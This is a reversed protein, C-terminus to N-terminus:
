RKNQEMGTIVIVERPILLVFRLDNAPLTYTADVTETRVPVLNTGTFTVTKTQRMLDKKFRPDKNLRRLETWRQGRMVLEKRREALIKTLAEDVSTATMNTYTTVNNVKKWRTVLLDNLTKMADTVNNARASCEAKILFLEDVTLGVFLSANSVQEYNGTFRYTGDALSVTKKKTPDNPFDADQLTVSITNAKFFITKRLDNADYLAYLEGNIRATPSSVSGPNLMVLPTMIAQFIVEDNFRTFPTLSTTSITNYDLLKSNLQLAATANALANPYDEMCLYTRALMAYAAAKNPRSSIVSTVPLLTVAENLDQIIRSYTQTVTGRGVVVNMDASLRLPIGPGGNAGGPSYSEAYLQAISWFTFARFFLATGKISNLTSQDATGKVKELNDLVLNAYYVVKYPGQWQTAATKRQADAAWGYLSQNEPDQQNYRNLNLYYDDASAEGDSPYSKNMVDYNDLLRQCDDATEIFTEQSNRKVDLYKKCSSTLMSGLGILLAAIYKKQIM